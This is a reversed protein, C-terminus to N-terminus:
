KVRGKKKPLPTNKMIEDFEKLWGKQEAEKLWTFYLAYDEERVPYLKLEPLGKKMAEVNKTKPPLLFLKKITEVVQPNLDKRHVFVHGAPLELCTQLPVLDSFGKDYAILSKIDYDPAAFADFKRLLVSYAVSEWPVHLVRFEKFFEMFPKKVSNKWLLKKIVVWYIYGGKPPLADKRSLFLPFDHVFRKGQLQSISKIGSDKHVYICWTNGKKEKTGLTVFPKVPVAHEKAVLYGAVNFSSLDVSGDGLAKFLFKPAPYFKLELSYGHLRELERSLTDVIERIDAMGKGVASTATIMPNPAVGAVIVKKEKKQAKTALPLVFFVVLLAFCVCFVKKRKM